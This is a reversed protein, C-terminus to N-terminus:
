FTNAVQYNSKPGASYFGVSKESGDIGYLNKRDKHKVSPTQNHYRSMIYHTPSSFCEERSELAQCSRSDLPAKGLRGTGTAVRGTGAVLVKTPSM